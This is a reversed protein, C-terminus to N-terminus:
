ANWLASPDFTEVAGMGNMAHAGDLEEALLRVPVSGLAPQDKRHKFKLASM